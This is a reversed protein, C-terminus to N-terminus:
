HISEKRLLVKLQEQAQAFDPQTRQVM